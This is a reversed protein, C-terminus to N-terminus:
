KFTRSVGARPAPFHLTELRTMSALITISDVEIVNLPDLEQAQLWEDVLTRLGTDRGPLVFTRKQMLDEIAGRSLMGREDIGEINTGALKLQYRRLVRTSFGHPVRPSDVIAANLDHNKVQALLSNTTATIVRVEGRPDILPWASCIKGMITCLYSRTELPPVCGIKVSKVERM